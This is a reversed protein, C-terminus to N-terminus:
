VNSFSKQKIIERDEKKLNNRNFQIMEVKQGNRVLMSLDTVSIVPTLISNLSSTREMKRIMNKCLYIIIGLGIVCIFLILIYLYIM